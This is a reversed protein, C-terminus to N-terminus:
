GHELAARDLRAAVAESASFYRFQLTWRVRESSNPESRHMNWLNFFVGDGARCSVRVPPPGEALVRDPEKVEFVRMPKRGPWHKVLEVFEVDPVPRPVVSIGGTREDIDVLPLWLVLGNQPLSQFYDRDRHWGLLESQNGPLDMRLQLGKVIVQGTRGGNIFEDALEVIEPKGALRFLAPHSNVMDYVGSRVHPPLGLADLGAPLGVSRAQMDTIDQVARMLAAIEDPSILGEVVEVGAAAFTLTERVLRRAHQAM